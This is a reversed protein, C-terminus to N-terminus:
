ILKDQSVIEKYIIQEQKENLIKTVHGYISELENYKSHSPNEHMFIKMEFLVDKLQEITMPKYKKETEIIRKIKAQAEEVSGTVVRRKGYHKDKCDECWGGILRCPKGCFDKKEPDDSLKRSCTGNM